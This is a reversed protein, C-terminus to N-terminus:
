LSGRKKREPMTSLKTSTRAYDTLKQKAAEMDGPSVIDYRRYTSETRHGSIGMAVNRSVGAREMNRVASRRLDHFLLGPFGASECAESWGPLHDGVPRNRAGYFVWPNAAPRNAYQVRLWTEMEGYVPLTRAKKNKTQSGPLVIL